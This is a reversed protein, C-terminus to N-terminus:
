ACGQYWPAPRTPWPSLQPGVPNAAFIRLHAKGPIAWIAESPKRYQWRLWVLHICIPLPFLCSSWDLLCSRRLWFKESSLWIQELGELLFHADRPLELLIKCANQIKQGKKKSKTHTNKCRNKVNLQTTLMKANHKKNVLIHLIGFVGFNKTEPSFLPITLTLFSELSFGSIALCFFYCFLLFFRFNHWFWFALFPKFFVTNTTGGGQGQPWVASGVSWKWYFGAM